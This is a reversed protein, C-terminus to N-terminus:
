GVNLVWLGLLSLMLVFTLLRYATGPRDCWAAIKGTLSLSPDFFSPM